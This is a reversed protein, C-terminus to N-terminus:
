VGNNQKLDIRLGRNLLSSLPKPTSAHTVMQVQEIM